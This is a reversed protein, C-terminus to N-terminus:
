NIIDNLLRALYFAIICSIIFKLISIFFKGFYINYRYITIKFYYIHDIISRCKIDIEKKENGDNCVLIINDFFSDILKLIHNGIVFGVVTVIVKNEILFRRFKDIKFLNFTNNEIEYETTYNDTM